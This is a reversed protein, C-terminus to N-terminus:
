NVVILDMFYVTINHTSSGYCKVYSSVFMLFFWYISLYMLAISKSYFLYFLMCPHICIHIPTSCEFFNKVNFANYVKNRFLFGLIGCAIEACFIILLM